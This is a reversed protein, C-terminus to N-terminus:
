RLNTAAMEAELRQVLAAYRANGRLPTTYYPQRAIDAPPLGPTDTGLRTLLDVADDQKGAWALTRAALSEAAQLRSADTSKLLALATEAAEDGREMFLQADARLAALYWANWRTSTTGDIFALLRRGDDRAADRDGLLLDAWGRFDATPQRGLGGAYSWSILAGRISDRGFEDLLDRAEAYEGRLIMREFVIRLADDPDQDPGVDFAIARKSFPALPELNGTFSFITVARLVEALGAAAPTHAKAEDLVRLAEIPKRL